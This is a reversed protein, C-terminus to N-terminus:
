GIRLPGRKVHEICAQIDTLMDPELYEMWATGGAEALEKMLRREQEWDPARRRGGLSIEFPAPSTRQSEIEGRLARVEEATLDQWSGDPTYKYALIGDWRAARRVPGKHPLSAGIWIPIRPQQVPKPLFTLEQVQYHEGPYSFPEGSWLGVLIDLAEDLMHARQRADIVEGVQTFGPERVDGLGVGLVFRGNSLRDLTVAERAVKWPRRRSLPTVSMGLRVRTTHQAIASLLVWPDCTPADKAHWHTIYDELFITDWGAEEALVALEVLVRFDGNPCTTPIGLEYRM